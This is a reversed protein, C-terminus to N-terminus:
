PSVVYPRMMENDEHQLNHCHWVYRGRTPDFPYLNVGPVASGSFVRKKATNPGCALALGGGPAMQWPLALSVGALGTLRVFDRRSIM